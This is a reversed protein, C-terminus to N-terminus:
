ASSPVSSPPSQVAGRLQLALAALVIGYFVAFGGILLALVIAGPVPWV